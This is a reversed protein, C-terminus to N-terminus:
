INKILFIFLSDTEPLSSHEISKDLFYPISEYLKYPFFATITSKFIDKGVEKLDLLNELYYQLIDISNYKIAFNLATSIDSKNM